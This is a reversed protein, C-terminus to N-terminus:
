REQQRAASAAQRKRKRAANKGKTQKRRGAESRQEHAIRRDARLEEASM